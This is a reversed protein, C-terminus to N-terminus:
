AAPELNRNQKCVFSKVSWRACMTYRNIASWGFIIVGRSAPRYGRSQRQSGSRPHARRLSAMSWFGAATRPHRRRGEHRVPSVPAPQVALPISKLQLVIEKGEEGPKLPQQVKQWRAIDHARLTLDGAPLGSLKFRGSADTLIAKRQMPDPGIAEVIVGAAPKNEQDVLSGNIKRGQALTVRLSALESSSKAYLDDITAGLTGPSSFVLVGKSGKDRENIVSIDPFHHIEFRGDKGSITEDIDRYGRAFTLRGNITVGELPKGHEDQVNGAVLFPPLSIPELKLQGDKNVSLSQIVAPEFGGPRGIIPGKGDASLSPPMPLQFPSSIKLLANATKGTFAIEVKFRGDKGTIVINKPDKEGSASKLKINGEMDTTSTFGGSTPTKEGALFIEVLVGAYPKQGPNTIITGTITAKSEGSNNAHTPEARVVKIVGLGALIMAGLSITALVRARTLNAVRIGTRLRSIRRYIESPRIMPVGVPTPADVILELYTSALTRSYAPAGGSFEAAVGDCVEECASNHARRLGWALPHFWLLVSLWRCLAMWLLDRSRIHALEHALIAPLNERRHEEILAAPLVVVPRLVGAVFPSLLNPTLRLEPLRCGLNQAASVALRRLTDPAPATSDLLRRLRLHVYAQRLSLVLAILSWLTWLLFSRHIKLWISISLQVPRPIVKDPITPAHFEMTPEFPVTPSPELSIPAAQTEPPTDVVKLGLKPLLWEAPPLLIMGVVMLRWLLVCWRPNRNTLAFHMLWGTGLLITMKLLVSAIPPMDTLSQLFSTM